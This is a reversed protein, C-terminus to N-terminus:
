YGQYPEWPTDTWPRNPWLTWGPGDTYRPDFHQYRASGDAFGAAHVDQQGHWGQLSRPEDSPSYGRPVAAEFAFNLRNEYFLIWESAGRDRKSALIETHCPGDLLGVSGSNAGGILPMGMFARYYYAWYWNIPYSSGWWKWTPDCDEPLDGGDPGGAQPVAVTSDSPCKFFSPLQMPRHRRIPNGAGQRELDCWSVDPDFMRNLPRDLEPIQYVDPWYDLPNMGWSDDWDIRRADPLGGGWIFETALNFNVTSLYMHESRFNWRYVFVLTGHETAYASGAQAITRLNSLCTAVRSHKRVADLPPVFVAVVLGLTAVVIVADILTAGKTKRKERAM